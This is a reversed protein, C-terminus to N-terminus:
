YQPQQKTNFEDHRHKMFAHRATNQGSRNRALTKTQHSTAHADRAPFLLLRFFDSSLKYSAVLQTHGDIQRDLPVTAQHAHILPRRYAKPTTRWPTL